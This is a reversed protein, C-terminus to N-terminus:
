VTTLGMLVDVSYNKPLHLTEGLKVISKTPSNWLCFPMNNNEKFIQTIEYAEIPDDLIGLMELRKGENTISTLLVAYNDQKPRYRLVCRYDPIFRNVNQLTYGQKYFERYYYKLFFRRAYVELINSELIRIDDYQSIDDIKSMVYLINKYYTVFVKKDRNNIFVIIGNKPLTYFQKLCTTFDM